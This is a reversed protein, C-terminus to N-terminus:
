SVLFRVVRVAGQSQRVEPGLQGDYGLVRDEELGTEPVVDVGQALGAFLLQPPHHPLAVQLLLHPGVGSPQVKHHLSISIIERNSLFLQDTQGPSQHPPVLDEQQVLGRGAQVQPRIM